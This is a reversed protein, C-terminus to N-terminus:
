RRGFKRRVWARMGRLALCGTLLVWGAVCLEGFLEGATLYPSGEDTTTAYGHLIGRVERDRGDVTLTSLSRGTPSIFASIGTNAARVFGARCEVARFVAIALHQDLEAGDKFWGENTVNVVFDMKQEGRAFDAVLRPFADEFCITPAFHWGNLEFLRYRSGPELGDKYPIFPSVVWGLLPKLPVYEGFPVLHIKDYYGAPGIGGQPLFFISNYQHIRATEVSYRGAGILLGSRQQLRRVLRRASEYRRVRDRGFLGPPAMTEPWIVLDPPQLASQAKQTLKVHTHFMDEINEATLLNKVSQPINGQIVAIRPGKRIAINDLRYSGYLQALVSLLLVGGGAALVWRRRAAQRLRCLCCVADALAGNVAVVWFTVGAAGTLDAIQIVPLVKYQTHAIFLWPLGTLFVGRVCELATWALPAALALPIGRKFSLWRVSACFLLFYLSFYFGLLFTGVFTVHRVWFFGLSGSAWGALWLVVWALKGYRRGLALLVPVLACWALFSLEAPPFSLGLLLVTAAAATSLIILGRRSNEKDSLMRAQLWTESM